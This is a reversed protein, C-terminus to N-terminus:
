AGIGALANSIANVLPTLAAVTKLSALHFLLKDTNGSRAHEHAREAAHIADPDGHERAKTRLENMLGLLDPPPGATKTKEDM